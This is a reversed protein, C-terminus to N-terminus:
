QNLRVKLLLSSKVENIFEEKEDYSLCKQSIKHFQVQDYTKKFNLRM